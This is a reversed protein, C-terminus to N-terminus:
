ETRTCPPSRAQLVVCLQQWIYGVPDDAVTEDQMMTFTSPVNNELANIGIDLVKIQSPRRM